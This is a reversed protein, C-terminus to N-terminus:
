AAPRDHPMTRDLIMIKQWINRSLGNTLDALQDAAELAVPDPFEQVYLAGLKSILSLLESCYDLYRSLLFPTLTRKPSSATREAENAARTTLEPDKTLQHMDVIHALARLERMATLCRHRKWRTELSAVFLLTAGILGISGLSAEFAQVFSDFRSLQEIEASQLRIRSMLLLLSVAMAVIALGTLLRLGYYPQAVAQSTTKAERSIHALESSVRRLGADGFREFIRRELQAATEVIRDAQLQRRAPDPPLLGPGPVAPQPSAPTKASEVTPTTSM